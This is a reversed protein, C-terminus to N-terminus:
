KSLTSFVPLRCSKSQQEVQSNFLNSNLPNWSSGNQQQQQSTSFSDFMPLQKLPKNSGQIKDESHGGSCRGSGIAAKNAKQQREQEKAAEELNHIFHCRPGYPCFGVSHYTRCLDTKYKPHRAVTRLEAM